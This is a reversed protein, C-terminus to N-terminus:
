GTGRSELTEPVKLIAHGKSRRGAPVRTDAPVNSNREQPKTFLKVIQPFVRLGM